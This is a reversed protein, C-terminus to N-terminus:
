RRRAVVIRNRGQARARYLADDAATFLRRLEDAHSLAFVCGVSVTCAISGAGYAAAKSSIRTRIEEGVSAVQAPDTEVLFVGFEEGGIRAAYSNSPISRRIAAAVHAIVADGAANGWQDNIPKFRNIDAILLGVGTGPPAAATWAVTKLRFGRRNLLGTLDDSYIQQFLSRHIRWEASGEGVLKILVNGVSIVDGERLSMTSIQRGNCYTGNTSGLDSLVIQDGVRRILCHERSVEPDRLKVSCGSDRGITVPENDFPKAGCLRTDEFVLLALSAKAATPTPCLVPRRDTARQDAGRSHKDLIKEAASGTPESKAIM